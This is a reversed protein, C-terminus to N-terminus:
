LEGPPELQEEHEPRNGASGRFVPLWASAIALAIAAGFIASISLNQISSHTLKGDKFMPFLDNLPFLFAPTVFVMRSWHPARLREPRFASAAIGALSVGSVMFLFAVQAVLLPNTYIYEWGALRSFLLLSICGIFLIIAACVTGVLLLSIRVFRLYRSAKM